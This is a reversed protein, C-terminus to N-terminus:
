GVRKATWYSIDRETVGDDTSSTRGTSVAYNGGIVRAATRFPEPVVLRGGTLKVDKKIALISARFPIGSDDGNWRLSLRDGQLTGSITGQRVVLPEYKGQVSVFSGITANAFGGFFPLAGLALGAASKAYSLLSDLGGTEFIPEYALVGNGTANGADDVTVLFDGRVTAGGALWRSARTSKGEITGAWTSAASARDTHVVAETGLTLALVALLCLLPRGTTPVTTSTM